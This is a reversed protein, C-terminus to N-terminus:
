LEPPKAGDDRAPPLGGAEALTPNRSRHERRRIRKRRLRSLLQHGAGEKKPAPEATPEPYDYRRHRHHRRQRRFFAAWIFVTLSIAVLVSLVAITQVTGSRSPGWLDQGVGALLVSAIM